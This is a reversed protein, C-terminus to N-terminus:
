IYKNSKGIQQKLGKKKPEEVHKHFMQELIEIRSDSKQKKYLGGVSMLWTYHQGIWDRGGQPCM